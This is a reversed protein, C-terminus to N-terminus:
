NFEEILWEHFEENSRFTNIIFPSTTTRRSVGDYSIRSNWYEEHLRKAEKFPLFAIRNDERTIVDWDIIAVRDGSEKIVVCGHHSGRDLLGISLYGTPLSRGAIDYYVYYLAM